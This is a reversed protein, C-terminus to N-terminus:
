DNNDLPTSSPELTSTPSPTVTPSPTNEPTETITPTITPTPLVLGNETFILNVVQGILGPSGIDQDNFYIQLAGANGTSIELNEDASYDYANGPLLRGTFVTESDSTIQVWVRQRPIIVVNIPSNNSAPTFLLPVEDQPTSDQSEGNPTGDPTRTQQPTPSGTALLVDAVEPLETAAAGPSDVDLIRNVGWIVFVAFSIFLAAIVLLDISFFNKLRLRTKSLEKASPKIKNQQLNQKELRQLQLGDAYDLLLADVDLNLFEAYNALMGKAQVPSPLEDLRGTELAALYPIRVHTHNHIDELSLSLLERRARLKEGMSTFLEASNNPKSVNLNELPEYYPEFESASPTVREEQDTEEEPQSAPEAVPESVPEKSLDPQDEETQTSTEERQSSREVQMFHDRNVELDELEIGLVSGYLRLFGRMQPQSPLSETDGAELAELYSLRIHTKQAIEELSIGRAERIQKLQKGPTHAMPSNYDLHFGTKHILM